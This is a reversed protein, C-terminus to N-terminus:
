KLQWSVNVLIKEKVVVRFVKILLHIKVSIRIIDSSGVLPSAICASDEFIRTLLEIKLMIPYPFKPPAIEKM